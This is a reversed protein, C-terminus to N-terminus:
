ACLRKYEAPMLSEDRNEQERRISSQDRSALVTGRPNPVEILWGLRDDQASM